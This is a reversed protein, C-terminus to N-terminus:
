RMLEWRERSSVNHQQHQDLNMLLWMMVWCCELTLSKVRTGLRIWNQCSGINEGWVQCHSSFTSMVCEPYLSAPLLIIILDSIVAVSILSTNSHHTHWDLWTIVAGLMGADRSLLKTIVSWSWSSPIMITKIGPVPCPLNLSGHAPPYHSHVM